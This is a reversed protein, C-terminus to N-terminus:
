FYFRSSQLKRGDFVSYRFGYRQYCNEEHRKKMSEDSYKGQRNEYEATEDDYKKRLLKNDSDTRKDDLSHIFNTYEEQSADSNKSFYKEFFM